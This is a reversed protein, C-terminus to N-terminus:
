DPVAFPVNRELLEASEDVPLPRSFLYGQVQTCGLQKLFAMQEMTEVGEAIVGLQLNRALVIITSVIAKDQPDSTIDKLFCRDIKLTDVPFRKLYNLSSYGKGFDDISIYIGMEKLERLTRVTFDVDKMLASETIELELWEPELGTDALVQEIVDVLNHQAFQHASLNVAVKKPALGRDQWEKNQACASRLAWEGISIILRTDEALSIFDGPLLLGRVPHNWRILAELCTVEGTLANIKPQYHLILEDRKMAQRLSNELSLRETIATNMASTYLQYNNRGQEKARYMATDANKIITGANEGDDPYVAIGISATILFEQEDIVWPQELVQLIKEAVKAADEEYKIHPILIAFEDAGLRAITDSERICGTLRVSVDRLLEDGRAHGKIDNVRKFRDLDLFLVGLKEQNRHAHALAMALRDNFLIRNPLGTLSDHYAQHTMQRLLSRKESVDHFVLVAGIIENDRNRIPSASDEIAFRYGEKHILVTNNALGVTRGEEICQIVPNSACTGTKENIISFVDLLPRGAAESTKWGTLSEAVPNLYEIHGKSDTTIVTDGISQLTVQAREKEEWITKESRKQEELYKIKQVAIEVQKAAAEIFKIEEERWKRVSSTQHLVMLYFGDPRFSFPYGLVSTVGMQQHVLEAVDDKIFLPYIDDKHSEIWTQREAIDQLTNSFM